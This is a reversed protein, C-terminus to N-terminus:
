QPSIVFGYHDLEALIFHLDLNNIHAFIYSFVLLYNAALGNAVVVNTDSAGILITGVNGETEFLSQLSGSEGHAYESTHKYITVYEAEFSFDPFGVIGKEPFGKQIKETKDLSQARKVMSSIKNWERNRFEKTYPYDSEYDEFDKKLRVITKEDFIEEVHKGKSQLRKKYAEWHTHVSYRSVKYYDAWANRETDDGNNIVKCMWLYAMDVLSEFISRCLILAPSGFGTKTLQYTGVGLQYVHALLFRSIVQLQNYKKSQMTKIDSTLIECTQLVLILNRYTSANAFPLSKTAELEKRWREYIEDKELPKAM